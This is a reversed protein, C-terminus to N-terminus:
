FLRSALSQFGCFRIPACSSGAVPAGVEPGAARRLRASSVGPRLGASRGRIGVNTATDLHTRRIRGGAAGMKMEQIKTRRFKIRDSWHIDRRERASEAPRERSWRNGDLPSGKSSPFKRHIPIQSFRRWGRRNKPVRLASSWSQAIRTRIAERPTPAGREKPQPETASRKLSDRETKANQGSLLTM